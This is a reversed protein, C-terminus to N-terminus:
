EWCVQPELPPLVRDLVEDIPESAPVVVSGGKAPRWLIVGCDELVANDMQPNAYVRREADWEGLLVRCTRIDPWYNGLSIAHPHDVKPVIGYVQGWLLDAAWHIEYHSRSLSVFVHRRLSTANPLRYTWVLLMEPRGDGDADAPDQTSHALPHQLAYKVDGSVRHHGSVSGAWRLDPSFVDWQFWRTEEHVRCHEIWTPIGAPPMASSGLRAQWSDIPLATYPPGGRVDAVFNNFAVSRPLFLRPSDLLLREIPRGSGHSQLAGLAARRGLDARFPVLTALVLILLVTVPMMWRAYPRRLKSGRRLANWTRPDADRM